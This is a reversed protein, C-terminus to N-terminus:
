KKGQTFTFSNLITLLTPKFDNIKDRSCGGVIFYIDEDDTVFAYAYCRSDRSYPKMTRCDWEWYEGEVTGLKIRQYNMNSILPEDKYEVRIFPDQKVLNKLNDKGLINEGRDNKAFQLYSPKAFILVEIFADKTIASIEESGSRNDQIQWGDPIFVTYSPNKDYVAGKIDAQIGTPDAPGAPAGSCGACVACAAIVIMLQLIGTRGRM